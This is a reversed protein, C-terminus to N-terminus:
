VLRAICLDKYSSTLSALKHADIDGTERIKRILTAKLDEILEDM